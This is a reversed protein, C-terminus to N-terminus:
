AAAPAVWTPPLGGAAAPVRSVRRPRWPPLIEVYRLVVPGLALADQHRLDSVTIPRGNVFTGNASRDDLVRARDGRQVIIAHRRSVRPDELRVDTSLGRGVHTVPRDLPILWAAGDHDVALYRGPPAGAGAVARARTRHDLLEFSDPMASTPAPM